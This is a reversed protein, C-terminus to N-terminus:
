LIWLLALLWMFKLWECNYHEEMCLTCTREQTNLETVHVYGRTEWRVRGLHGTVFWRPSVVARTGTQTSTPARPSFSQRKGIHCPDQGHYTQLSTIISNEQPLVKDASIEASSVASAYNGWGFQQHTREKKFINLEETMKWWTESLHNSLRLYSIGVRGEQTRSSVSSISGM